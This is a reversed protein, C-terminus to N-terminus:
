IEVKRLRQGSFGLPKWILFLILIVYAIADMWKTDIYYAAMHQATAVLLSGALLGRYSGVGGIIMAVIGYLLLNFGFTPTMNTDIATLIGALAGVGSGLAFCILIITNSNIGQIQALENNSSVANIRKGISTHKMFLVAAGFLFFSVLISVIQITTLYGGLFNHGETIAGQQLTKVDDGWTISIINQLITYLGISAILFTLPPANRKRLFSYISIECLVGVLVSFLIALPIAIALHLQFKGIFAFCFYAGFSITAAHHLCFYKTVYYLYSFSLAILSTISAVLLINFVIQV